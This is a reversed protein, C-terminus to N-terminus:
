NITVTTGTNKYDERDVIIYYTGAPVDYFAYQGTSSSSTTQIFFSSGRVDIIQVVAGTIINGNVDRITGSIQPDGEIVPDTTPTDTVPDTAPTDTVPDTTPTDTVPDTTPTDVNPETTPIATFELSSVLDIISAATGTFDNEIAARITERATANINQVLGFIEETSDSGSEISNLLNSPANTIFELSAICLIMKNLIRSDASSVSGSNEKGVALSIGYLDLSNNGFLGEIAQSVAEEGSGTNAFNQEARTALLTTYANITGLDMSDDAGIRSNLILTKMFYTGNRSLKLVYDKETDLVISVTEASLSSNLSIASPSGLEYISIEDTDTIKLRSSDNGYVAKLQLKVGANNQTQSDGSGGCALSLLLLSILVFALTIKDRM